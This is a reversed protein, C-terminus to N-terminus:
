FAEIELNLDRFNPAASLGSYYKSVFQSTVLVCWIECLVEVGNFPTKGHGLGGLGCVGLSCM